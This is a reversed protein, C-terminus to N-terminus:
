GGTNVTRLDDSISTSAHRIECEFVKAESGNDQAITYMDDSDYEPISKVVWGESIRPGDPDLWDVRDGIKFEDMETENQRKQPDSM